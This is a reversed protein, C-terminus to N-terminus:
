MCQSYNKLHLTWWIILCLWTHLFVICSCSNACADSLLFLDLSVGLNGPVPENFEYLKFLYCLFCYHSVAVCRNSHNFDLFSVVDIEASTVSCCSLENTASPFAFHYLWKLFRQANEWVVLYPRVMHDPLWVGLHKDLQNIFIHWRQPATYPGGSRWDPCCITVEEWLTCYPFLTPSSYKNCYLFKVFVVEVLHLHIDVTTLWTSLIYGECQTSFIASSRQSRGGWFRYSWELWSKDLWM